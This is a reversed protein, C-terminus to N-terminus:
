QMVLHAGAGSSVELQKCVSTGTKKHKCAPSAPPAADIGFPENPGPGCRIQWCDGASQIHRQVHQAGRSSAEKWLELMQLKQGTLYAEPPRAFKGKENM